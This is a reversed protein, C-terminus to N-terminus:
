QKMRKKKKKKMNRQQGCRTGDESLPCQASMKIAPRELVINDM